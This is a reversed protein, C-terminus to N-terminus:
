FWSEWTNGTQAAHLTATIRPLDGGHAQIQHFRYSDFFVLDGPEYHVIDSVVNKSIREYAQRKDAGYLRDWIRLGGGSMPKQLMLVTSVLPVKAYRLAPTYGEVDCHIVGHHKTTHLIHMGAGCWNNGSRATVPASVMLEMYRRMRAAFGPVNREILENSFEALEHYLKSARMTKDVYYARGFTHFDGRFAPTWFEKAYMVTQGISIAEERSMAGRVLYALPVDLVTVEQAAIKTSLNTVLPRAPFRSGISFSQNFFGSPSIEIIEM